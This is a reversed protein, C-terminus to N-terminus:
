SMVFHKAVVLQCLRIKKNLLTDLAFIDVVLHEIREFNPVRGFMTNKNCNCNSLDTRARLNGEYYPSKKFLYSLDRIQLGFM